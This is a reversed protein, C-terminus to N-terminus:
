VDNKEKPERQTITEAPRKELYPQIFAAVDDLCDISAAASSQVHEIRGYVRGGANGEDERQWLRIVFSSYRM